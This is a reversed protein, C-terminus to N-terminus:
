NVEDPPQTGRRISEEIVALEIAKELLSLIPTSFKDRAAQQFKPDSRVKEIFAQSVPIKHEELLVRFSEREIWIGEVAETLKGMLKHVDDLYM